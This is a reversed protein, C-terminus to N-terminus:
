LARDRFVDARGCRWPGLLRSSMCGVEVRREHRSWWPTAAIPLLEDAMAVESGAGAELIQDEAAGACPESEWLQSFPFGFVSVGQSSVSVVFSRIDFPRIAIKKRM